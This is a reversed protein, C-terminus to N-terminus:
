YVIHILMIDTYFVGNLFQWATWLLIQYHFTIMLTYNFEKYEKHVGNEIISGNDDFLCKSKSDKYFM